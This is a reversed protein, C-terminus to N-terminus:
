SSKLNIINVWLFAGWLTLNKLGVKPTCMLEMLAKKDIEKRPITHIRNNKMFRAKIENM